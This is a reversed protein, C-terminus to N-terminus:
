GAGGLASGVDRANLASWLLWIKEASRRHMDWVM